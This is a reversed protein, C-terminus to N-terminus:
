VLLNWSMDCAVCDYGHLDNQVYGQICSIM